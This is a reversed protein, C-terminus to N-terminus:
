RGRLSRVKGDTTALYLRGNAAAMGDFVPLADLDYAALRSGDRASVAWLVAGGRGLLAAEQKLLMANSGGAFQRGLAGEDLVDRPGAVFLTRDALTMARVLIPVETSWAYNRADAVPGQGGRRKARGKRGAKPQAKRKPAAKRAPQPAQAPWEKRAAFLRYELPSTWRYYQPRRGFVYVQDDGVSIIRGAPAHRGAIFYGNWGSSWTRGYMWYTRHFWTDDLFGTPCFLHTGEGGQQTGEQPGTLTPGMALRKGKLDFAQSRMYIRRGDCSLVDPRAVAMNLWKVTDQLNKGTAPNKESLPTQSVVQGTRANLRLLRMGGDVFASRGAVVHAVGERVLVSGHVPWLSEIQEYALIRRDAPAARFRWILKGEDARLCYVWGDASGFLVRGEFYTPPSDVRGGAVYRWLKRGTAADLAHVAHRDIAAVLVKGGAVTVSSLKGGLATQWGPRLSAPVGARTAGSRANDGRHTPWDDAAAKGTVPAGYAPGKELPQAQAEVGAAGRRAPALASFSHLMTEAYCICPASPAYVLGNCPMIGYLCAGRTWHNLDWHKRRFDIFEMGTRSTIIYNSTARGSYCRHHFWYSREDAPFQHRVRGTKLDRGVLTGDLRGNSTTGSWVVGDIVFLDEPSSYGSPPHDARWLTRGTKASLATLTDAKTAGGTSKIMGSYEGSAFLVVGDRVILKSAFFSRQKEPTPLAECRWLRGGGRRDLCVVQRDAFNFYYLHEDDVAPTMAAVVDSAQWLKRGSDAQVALITRKEAPREGRRGDGLSGPGVLVFLVGDDLLIEEAGKTQAYTRITKGTVADLCTVPGHLDLTAYVRGGSAVLRRPADAPGDKLGKFRTYWTDIKRRWLRKGNFADRAILAWRSPMYISATLGEDLIYFIRGGTSVLASLSSMKDHHRTWKPGCQWQLRRPPGVVTDAAVANNDPGHLYHTWEDIDKPRAKRTLTWRGDRRVYAVGGPCLVRLVEERTVEGLTEAVVLNVLNDVYPLRGGSLRDISVPGYLGARRIAERAAPVNAPAVALGHVVYGDDARLAATLAGAQGSSTSPGCGLHVVLGGRVGTASLIQRGERGHAASLLGALAAATVCTFKKM